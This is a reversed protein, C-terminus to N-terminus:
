REKPYADIKVDMTLTYDNIHQGGNAPLKVANPPLSITLLLAPSKSM